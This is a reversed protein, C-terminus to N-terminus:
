YLEEYSRWKEEHMSIFSLQNKKFKIVKLSLYNLVKSYIKNTIELTVFIYVFIKLFNRLLLVSM